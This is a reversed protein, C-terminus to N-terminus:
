SLALGISFESLRAVQPRVDLGLVDLVELVHLNQRTDHPLVALQLDLKWTLSKFSLSRVNM